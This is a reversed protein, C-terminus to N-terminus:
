PQEARRLPLDREVLRLGGGRRELTMREGDALVLTARNADSAEIRLGVLRGDPLHARQSELALRWRAGDILRRSLIQAEPPLARFSDIESLAGLDVAWDGLWFPASAGTAPPADPSRQPNCGAGWGLALVALWRLPLVPSIPRPM